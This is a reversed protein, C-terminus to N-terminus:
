STNGGNPFIGGAMNGFSERLKWYVLNFIKV